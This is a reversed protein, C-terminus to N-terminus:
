NDFLNAVYTTLVRTSTATGENWSVSVEVKMTDSDVSGGSEVINSNMDRMVEYFVIKREYLGDVYNNTTVIDWGDVQWSLFYDSGTSLTAINSSWSDNRLFKVAEIGEEALLSAKIEKSGGFIEKLQLNYVGVLAAVFVTIVSAAVLVEAMTMGRNTKMM